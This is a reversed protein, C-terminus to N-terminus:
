SGWRRWSTQSPLSCPVWANRPPLSAARLTFPLQAPSEPRGPLGSGAGPICWGPLSIAFVQGSARSLASPPLLSLSSSPPPLPHPLARSSLRRLFSSASDSRPLLPHRCCHGGRSDATTRRGPNLRFSLFSSYALPSRPFAPQRPGDGRGRWIWAPTSLPSLTSRGLSFGQDSPLSVTGGWPPERDWRCLGPGQSARLRM